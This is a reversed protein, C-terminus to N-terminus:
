VGEGAFAISLCVRLQALCATYDALTGGYPDPIDMPLATIKGAAEPFRMTLEMAHAATIGVVLDAAAVMDATVTRARHRTYDASPVPAVGAQRLAELANPSIPAGEAAFLGASEASLRPFPVADGVASCVERPRAMDNLLAAAMPSRCTNGTCVFLVRRAPQEARDARDARLADAAPAEVSM